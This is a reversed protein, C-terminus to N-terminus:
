LKHWQITLGLSTAIRHQRSRYVHLAAEHRTKIPWSEIAARDDARKLEDETFDVRLLRNVEQRTEPHLRMKDYNQVYWLKYDPKGLAKGAGRWDAIMERVYRAPMSIPETEGTDWTILWYQWHHKGRKQHSNWARAFVDSTVYRKNGNPAYFTRAYPFWESLLFKHWDHFILQWLPVRLSLGAVFVYWKHRMVYKLYALHRRM